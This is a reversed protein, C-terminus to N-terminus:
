LQILKQFIKQYLYGTFTAISLAGVFPIFINNSNSLVQKAGLQSIFRYTFWNSWYKFSM